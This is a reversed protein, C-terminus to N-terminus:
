ERRPTCATSTGVLPTRFLERVAVLVSREDIQVDSLPRGDQREDEPAKPEAEIRLRHDVPDLGRNPHQEFGLDTHADSSTNRASAGGISETGASAVRMM